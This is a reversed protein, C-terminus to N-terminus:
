FDECPESFTWRPHTWEIAPDAPDRGPLTWRCSSARPQENQAEVARRSPRRLPYRGRGREMSTGQLYWMNQYVPICPVHHMVASGSHCSLCPVSFTHLSSETQSITQHGLPLSEFRFAGTHKVRTHFRAPKNTTAALKGAACRRDGGDWRVTCWSLRTPSLCAESPGRHSAGISRPEQAALPAVGAHGAASGAHVACWHAVRGRPKARSPDVEPLQRSHTQVM